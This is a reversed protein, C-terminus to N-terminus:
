ADLSARLKALGAEIQALAAKAQKRSSPPSPAAQCESSDGTLLWEMSVGLTTAALALQDGRPISGNLWKSIAAQSIGIKDALAKQTLASVQM